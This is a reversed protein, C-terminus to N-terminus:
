EMQARLKRLALRVRTKVTGHPIADRESVERTSLGLLTVAVLARQQAAPLEGMLALVRGAEAREGVMDGLDPVDPSGDEPVDVTPVPRRGRSRVHDLAVNRTIGLLWAVVSGRREDFSAAFRWARVFAEQAVDQADAPDRVIALALGYVKREVRHVFAAAAEPDGSTYGAFLAEDSVDWMGETGSPAGFPDRAM